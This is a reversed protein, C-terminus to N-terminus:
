SPNLRWLEPQLCLKGTDSVPFSENSQRLISIVIFMIVIIAVIRIPSM